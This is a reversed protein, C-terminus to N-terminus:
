SKHNLIKSKSPRPHSSDDQMLWNESIISVIEVCNDAGSEPYKLELVLGSAQLGHTLLALQDAIESDKRVFGYLTEGKDDHSVLRYANFVKDDDFPTNFYDIPSCVVFFTAPETVRREVFAGWDLSSYRVTSKWIIKPNELDLCDLVISIEGAASEAIVAAFQHGNRAIGAVQDIVVDKLAHASSKNQPRSYWERALEDISEPDLVFKRKAAWGEATLFAHAIEGARQREEESPLHPAKTAVPTPPAVTPAPTEAQRTSLSYVAAAAAVGIVSTTIIRRRETGILLRAPPFINLAAEFNSIEEEIEVGETARDWNDSYTERDHAAPAQPPAAILRAKRKKSQDTKSNNPEAKPKKVSRRSSQHWRRLDNPEINFEIAAQEFSINSELMREIADTLKDREGANPLETKARPPTTEGPHESAGERPKISIDKPDRRKAPLREM